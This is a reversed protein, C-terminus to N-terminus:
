YHQFAGNIKLFLYLIKFLKNFDEQELNINSEKLIIQLCLNIFDRDKNQKKLNIYIKFTKYDIHSTSANHISYVKGLINIQNPVKLDHFNKTWWYKITEDLIHQKTKDISVSASGLMVILLEKLSLPEQTEYSLFNEFTFNKDFFMDISTQYDHVLYKKNRRAPHALKIYDVKAAKVVAELLSKYEDDHKLDLESIAM